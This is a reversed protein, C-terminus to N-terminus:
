RRAIVEAAQDAAEQLRDRVVRAGARAGPRTQLASLAGAVRGAIAVTRDRATELGPEPTADAVKEAEHQAREALDRAHVRVFLSRTRDRVVGDALIRGEVALAQVAGARRELEDRSTDGCGALLLVCSAALV